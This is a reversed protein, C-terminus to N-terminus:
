DRAFAAALHREMDTFPQGSRDLVVQKISGGTFTFPSEYDSSLPQGADRGANM